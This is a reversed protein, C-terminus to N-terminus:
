QDQKRHHMFERNSEGYVARWSRTEDWTCINDRRRGPEDIGAEGDAGASYLQYSDPACHAGGAKLATPDAEYAAHPVYHYPRGWADPPPGHPFYNANRSLNDTAARLGEPGAPPYGGHDRFYTDVAKALGALDAETRYMRALPADEPLRVAVIFYVALVVLLGTGGLFALV